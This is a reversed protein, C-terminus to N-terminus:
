QKPLFTVLFPTINFSIDKGGNANCNRYEKLLLFMKSFFSLIINKLSFWLWLNEDILFLLFTKGALM